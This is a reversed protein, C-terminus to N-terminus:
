GFLGASCPGFRRGSAARGTRRSTAASRRWGGRSRIPPRAPTAFRLSPAAIARGRRAELEQRAQRLERWPGEIRRVGPIRAVRGAIPHEREIAAIHQELAAIRQDLAAIHGALGQVQRGRGLAELRAAILAEERGLLQLRFRSAAERALAGGEGRAAQLALGVGSSRGSRLEAIRGRVADLRRRLAPEESRQIAALAAEAEEKQRAIEEGLLRQQGELAAIEEGLAPLSRWAEVAKVFAAMAAVVIVFLLIRRVSWSLLLSLLRMM